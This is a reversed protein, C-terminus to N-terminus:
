FDGAHLINSYQIWTQQSGEYVLFLSNFSIELHDTVMCMHQAKMTVAVGKPKLIDMLANAVQKTLREQVQLRQSFM